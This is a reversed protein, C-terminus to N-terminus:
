LRGCPPVISMSICLDSPLDRLFCDLNPIFVQSLCIFHRPVISRLRTSHKVSYIVIKDYNRMKLLMRLLSIFKELLFIRVIDLHLHYDPLEHVM